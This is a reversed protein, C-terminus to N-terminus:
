RYQPLVKVSHQQIWKVDMDKPVLLANPAAPGSDGSGASSNPPQLPPCTRFDLWHQISAHGDAWAFGAANNHYM